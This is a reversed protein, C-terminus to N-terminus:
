DAQTHRSIGWGIPRRRNGPHEPGPGWIAHTTDICRGSRQLRVFLVALMAWWLCLLVPMWRPSDALRLGLLSGGIVLPMAIWGLTKHVIEFAVRRRTMDYHDGRMVTDTPGGKTGRFLGGMVQLWGISVVVWGIRHHLVALPSAGHARGFAMLFGITMVYVGACQLLVHTRWWIVSDLKAPWDQRRWVKFFRAILIGAPLMVSWGLVMLRGHWAAWPAIAHGAGGSLPMLLWSM